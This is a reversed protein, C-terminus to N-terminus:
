ICPVIHTHSRLRLLITLLNVLIVCHLPQAFAASNDTVKM